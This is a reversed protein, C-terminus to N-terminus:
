DWIDIIYNKGDKHIEYKIELTEDQIIHEQLHSPFFGIFEKDSYFEWYKGKLDVIKIYSFTTISTQEFDIIRGEIVDSNNNSSSLILLTILLLLLSLIIIIRKSM